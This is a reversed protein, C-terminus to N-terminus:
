GFKNMLARNLRQHEGKNSLDKFRNKRTILQQLHHPANTVGIAGIGADTNNGDVRQAIDLDNPEQVTISEELGAHSPNYILRPDGMVRDAM